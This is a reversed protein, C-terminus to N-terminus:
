AHGFKAETFDWPAEEAKMSYQGLPADGNGGMMGRGSMGPLEQLCNDEGQAGGEACGPSFPPLSSHCVSGKM